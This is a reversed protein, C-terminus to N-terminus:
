TPRVVLVSPSQSHCVSVEQMGGTERLQPAAPFYWSIFDCKYEPNKPAIALVVQSSSASVQRGQGESELVNKHVLREMCTGASGWM